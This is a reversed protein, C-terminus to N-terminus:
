IMKLVNRIFLSSRHLERAIKNVDLGKKHLEKAKKSDEYDKKKQVMKKGSAVIEKLEFKKVLMSVNSKNRNLIKAVKAISFDNQVLLLLIKDRSYIYGSQYESTYFSITSMAYGLKESIEKLTYGQRKLRRM